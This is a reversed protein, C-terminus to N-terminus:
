RSGQRSLQRVYRCRGSGNCLRLLKALGGAVTIVGIQHKTGKNKPPAIREGNKGRPAAKAKTVVKDDMILYQHNLMIFVQQETRIHNNQLPTFQHQDEIKHSQKEKEMTGRCHHPTSQRENTTRRSPSHPDHDHSCPSPRSALSMPALHSFGSQLPTSALRLSTLYIHSPTQFKSLFNVGWIEFDLIM